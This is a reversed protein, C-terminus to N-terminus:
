PEPRRQSLSIMQYTLLLGGAAFIMASPRALQPLGTLTALVLGLVGAPLLIAVLRALRDSYLDVARPLPRTGVLPGFRHYWVLFPIIKYFHGAVFLSLGGLVLALVYATAVRPAGAGGVVFFPALLVAAGLWAIGAAALRLGPDLAPKRGHRYFLAAQTMLAITGGTLMAASGWIVIPGMWHHGVLLLASGGSLLGLAWWAPRESAGHSLLFMPLLHHAVGVMVLMVWGAVAVHIHVALMTLREGGVFGWRLNGSLATGMAVTVILFVAAGLLAYWTLSREEARWLTAILNGAFFLLAGGFLAAGIMMWGTSRMVTAALFLLLGPAYLVLGAAALSESRLRTGLAVPLFQCLAGLITTTIWGLTFLHTVALVRSDTFDGRAIEPAVWVLGLSGMTWFVLAVAFHWAPLHPPPPTARGSEARPGAERRAAEPRTTPETTTVTM